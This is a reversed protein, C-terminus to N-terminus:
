ADGETEKKPGPRRAGIKNELEPWLCKVMDRVHARNDSLRYWPNRGSPHPICLVRQGEIKEAYVEPGEMGFAIQVSKGLLILPRGTLGNARIRAMKSSWEGHCLNTRDFSDLYHHEYMLLIHSCLREGACGRPSPWLAFEDSGGYPNITGVILPKQWM